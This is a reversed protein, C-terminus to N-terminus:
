RLSEGVKWTSNFVGRLLKGCPLAPSCQLLRAQPRSCNVPPTYRSFDSFQEQKRWKQLKQLEGKVRPPVRSCEYLRKYFTSRRSCPSVHRCHCAWWRSAGSSARAQRGDRQRAPLLPNAPICWARLVAAGEAERLVKEPACPFYASPFPHLFRCSICWLVM